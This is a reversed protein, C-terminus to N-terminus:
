RATKRAKSAGATPRRASTKRASSRSGSAVVKQAREVDRQLATGLKGSDRRADKVFRELDKYLDKAGASVDKSLDKRLTGLADQASDLSENLRRLAAPETPRRGNTRSTSKKTATSKKATSKETTAPM